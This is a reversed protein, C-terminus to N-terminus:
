LIYYFFIMHNYMKPLTQVESFLEMIYPKLLLIFLIYTYIKKKKQRLVFYKIVNM